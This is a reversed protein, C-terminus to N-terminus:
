DRLDPFEVRIIREEAMDVLLVADLRYAYAYELLQRRTARSSILAAAGTKVEAVLREGDREVLVDARLDFEHEDGDVVIRSLAPEQSSLIAYGHRELLRLARREARGGRIRRRNLRAALWLRRLRWGCALLLAVGVAIVVAIAVLAPRGLVVHMSAVLM